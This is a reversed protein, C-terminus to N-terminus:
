LEANFDIHGAILGVRYIAGPTLGGSVSFTINVNGDDDIFSEPIATPSVGASLSSQSIKIDSLKSASISPNTRMPQIKFVLGLETASNAFGLGMLTGQVYNYRNFFYKCKALEQQYDMDSQPLLNWAGTSDQYGLTQREGEELKYYFDKEGSLVFGFTSGFYSLINTAATWGSAEMTKSKIELDGGSSQRLVSITLTKGNMEEANEMYYRIAFSPGSQNYIGGYDSAKTITSQQVGSISQIKFRDPIYINNPTGTYGDPYQQWVRLGGNILLNPRVAAGLNYLARPYDTLNALEGLLRGQEASLAVAAGGTTLNDIVPVAGAPLNDLAAKISQYSQEAKDASQRASEASDNAEHITGIVDEIQKQLQEAQSPTPDTPNTANNVAPSFSVSLKDGITRARKGDIYGDLVFSCEGAYELPEPPILLTWVVSGDEMLTSQNTTLVQKVPNEGRANFWTLTKAMGNWSEDPIIQVATVNGAGQVGALQSSKRVFEGNVEITITRM